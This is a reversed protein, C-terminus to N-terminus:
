VQASAEQINRSMSQHPIGAEMYEDGYAVFGHRGYFPMAQTQSNLRVQRHGCARALEILSQLLASGVERGRWASVVALRGITGDPLLRGCGIAMGGTDEAIAHRSVADYEDWEMDEPISQEDIFVVRRVHRLGDTAESWDVLRIAFPNAGLSRSADVPM